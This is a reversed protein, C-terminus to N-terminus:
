LTQGILQEDVKRKLLAVYRKNGPTNSLYFCLQLKPFILKGWTVARKYKDESIIKKRRRGM